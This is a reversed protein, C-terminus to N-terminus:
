KKRKRKTFARVLLEGQKYPLDGAKVPTLIAASFIIFLYITKEFM